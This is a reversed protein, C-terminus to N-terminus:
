FDRSKIPEFRARFAELQLEGASALEASVDGFSLAFEVLLLTPLGDDAIPAAM